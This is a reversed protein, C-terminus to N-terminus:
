PLRVHVAAIEAQGPVVLEVNVEDLEQVQM